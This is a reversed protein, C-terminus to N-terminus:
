KPRVLSRGQPLAVKLGEPQFYLKAGYPCFIVCPVHMDSQGVPDFYCKFMLTINQKAFHYEAECLSIRSRLTINRGVSSTSTVKLGEPQFYLKTGKPCFIVKSRIYVESYKTESYRRPVTM